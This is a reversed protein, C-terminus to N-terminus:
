SAVRLSLANWGKTRHYHIDHALMRVMSWGFGGEPLDAFALEVEPAIGPPLSEGPMPVGNDRVLVTWYGEKHDCTLAIRGDPKEAFAHEVVNNLVEGLVIELTGSDVTRVPSDSLQDRLHLLAHRVEQPTGELEIHIPLFTNAM